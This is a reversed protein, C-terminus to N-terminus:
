KELAQQPACGENTLRLKFEMESFADTQNESWDVDARIVSKGLEAGPKFRASRTKVNVIMEGKACDNKFVEAM